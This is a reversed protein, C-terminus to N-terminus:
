RPKFLILRVYVPRVLGLRDKGPRVQYLKVYSSSVQRVPNLM